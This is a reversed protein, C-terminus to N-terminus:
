GVRQSEVVPAESPGVMPLNEFVYILRKRRGGNGVVVRTPTVPAFWSRVQEDRLMHHMDTPDTMEWEIPLSVIAHRAVRRVERFAEPQSTGLHEFVQLGVFLDYARNEVPWPGVTADHVIRRGTARLEAREELEMTDAGVILPQLHPGLELASRLRHASILEAAVKSAAELYEGRLRYYPLAAALEVIEHHRLPRIPVPRRILWRARTELRTVTRDLTNRYSDPNDPRLRPAVRRWIPRLIPRAPRLWRKLGRELTV